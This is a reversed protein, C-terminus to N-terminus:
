LFPQPWSRCFQTLGKRSLPTMPPASQCVPDNLADVERGLKYKYLDLGSAGLIYGVTSANSSGALGAMPGTGMGYLTLSM